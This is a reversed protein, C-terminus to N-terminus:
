GEFAVPTSSSAEYHQKLTTARKQVRYLEYLPDWHGFTDILTKLKLAFDMSSTGSRDERSKRELLVTSLDEGVATAAAFIGATDGGVADVDHPKPTM